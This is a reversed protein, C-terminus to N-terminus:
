PELEVSMQVLCRAKTESVKVFEGPFINGSRPHRSFEELALGEAWNISIVSIRLITAGPNVLSIAPFGPMDDQGPGILGLQSNADFYLEADGLVAAHRPKFEPKIRGGQRRDPVVNVGGGVDIRLGTHRM